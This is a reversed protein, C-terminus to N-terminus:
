AIGRVRLSVLAAIVVLYCVTIASWSMFAAYNARGMVDFLSLGIAAIAAIACVRLVHSLRDAYNVVFVIAPTSILFVYDWGQPSLLPILTLLLSGELGEPFETGRRRIRVFAAIVVLVVGTMATLRAAATGPGLWKAYMAAISVNDQNLLNPATSDRVVRWWQIHLDITPAAGYVVAPLALAGIVCATATLFARQRGAALWPLFLLAYPKVVVALAVLAGATTDRQTRLALLASAAIVGFLLNVQGLILEHGFFKAMAIVAALALVWLPRRREPLLKISITVLTAILAASLLFWVAKAYALPLLSVPIALVAFAPLYKFQYHGDEARYLPAGVRARDAATWYVEFDPMSRTIRAGATLSLVALASAIL